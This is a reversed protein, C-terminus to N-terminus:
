VPTAVSTPLGCGAPDGSGIEAGVGDYPHATEAGSTGDALPLGGYLPEGFLALVLELEEMKGVARNVVAPDTSFFLQRVEAYRRLLAWRVIDFDAGDAAVRAAKALNDDNYRSPPYELPKKM